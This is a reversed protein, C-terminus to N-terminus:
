HALYCTQLTLLSGAIFQALHFISDQAKKWTHSNHISKQTFQVLSYSSSSSSSGISSTYCISISYAIYSFLYTSWNRIGLLPILIWAVHPVKVLFLITYCNHLRIAISFGTSNVMMAMGYFHHNLQSYSSTHSAIYIGKYCSFNTKHQSSKTFCTYRIVKGYLTFYVRRCLTENNISNCSIVWLEGLSRERFTAVRKERFHVSISPGQKSRISTDLAM